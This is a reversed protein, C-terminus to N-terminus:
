IHKKTCVCIIYDDEIIHKFTYCSENRLLTKLNSAITIGKLKILSEKKTWLKTMELQPDKSNVIKECERKNAIRELLEKNFEIKKQIDVGINEDSFVIALANESHSINFRKNNRLYPKGNKGYLFDQKPNLKLEQQVIFYEVIKIKKDVDYYCNKAKEKRKNPLLQFIFEILKDDIDNINTIYFLKNQISKKM